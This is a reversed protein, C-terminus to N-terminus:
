FHFICDTKYSESTAKSQDHKEVLIESMSTEAKQNATIKQAKYLHVKPLTFNMHRNGLDKHDHIPWIALWMPNNSKLIMALSVIKSIIEIEAVKASETVFLTDFSSFNKWSTLNKSKMRQKETLISFDEFIDFNLGFCTFFVM